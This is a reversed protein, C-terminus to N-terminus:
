YNLGNKRVHVHPEGDRALRGDVVEGFLVVHDGAPHEGTVRCEVWALAAALVPLGSATHAIELGEFPTEGEPQRRAFPAMAKRSRADLVSVAFRGAARLDALFPRGQGVAVTLMPPALSAQMVFSGLLGEPRGARLTTVIFLGSPIRGLARALEQTDAPPM